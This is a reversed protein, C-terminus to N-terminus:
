QRGPLQSVYQEVIQWNGSHTSWTISCRVACGALGVSTATMLSASRESDSLHRPLSLLIQTQAKNVVKMVMPMIHTM